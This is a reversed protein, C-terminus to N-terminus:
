MQRIFECSLQVDRRPNSHPSFSYMPPTRLAQSLGLTPSALYGEM